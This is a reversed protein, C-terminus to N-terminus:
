VNSAGVIADAAEMAEDWTPMGMRGTSSQDLLEALRKVESELRPTYMKGHQLTNILALVVNGSQWQVSNTIGWENDSRLNNAAHQLQKLGRVRDQELKAKREDWQELTEFRHEGSKDM